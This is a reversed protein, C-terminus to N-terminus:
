RVLVTQYMKASLGSFLGFFGERRYIKLFADLIGAYKAFAAHRPTSSVQMRSKVLQYPYTIVTAVAKAFAGLLFYEISSLRVPTQSTGMRKRVVLAVLQEYTMFQIAPNIVLVLSPLLGAYLGAIGSREFITQLANWMGEYGRRGSDVALRTQIVWIPTTVLVNAVGALGAIVINQLPTLQQKGRVAKNKLFSYFYFYAAQGVFVGTLASSMGRYLGSIGERKPVAFLAHLVGNLHKDDDFDNDGEQRHVQVQLRCRVNELPYLLAMAMVSASGGALAHTTADLGM